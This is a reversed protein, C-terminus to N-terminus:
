SFKKDIKKEYNKLAIAHKAEIKEIEDKHTNSIKLAIGNEVKSSPIISYWLSQEITKNIFPFRTNYTGKLRVRFYSNKSLDHILNFGYNFQTKGGISFLYKDSFDISKIEDFESNFGNILITLKHINFQSTNLFDLSLHNDNLVTQGYPMINPKEKRNLVITVMLSALSIFIAVSSAINQGVWQIIITM